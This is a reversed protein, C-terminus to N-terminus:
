RDLAAAAARRVEPVPDERLRTLAARVDPEDRSRRLASLSLLREQTPAGPAQAHELLAVRVSPESACAALAGLILARERPEPGARWAALLAPHDRRRIIDKLEGVRAELAGAEAPDLGPASTPSQVPPSPPPPPSPSTRPALPASSPSPAPPAEEENEPLVLASLGAFALLLPVVLAWGLWSRPLLRRGENAL